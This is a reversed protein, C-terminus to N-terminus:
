PGLQLVIGTLGSTLGAGFVMFVVVGQATVSLAASALPSLAALIAVGFAPAPGVLHDPSRRRAGHDGSCRSLGRRRLRVLAARGRRM